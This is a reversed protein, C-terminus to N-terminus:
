SKKIELLEIEFILVSNPGIQPPANVGYALESPIFLKWKSGVKMKQLAETWGAIVGNVPFTAPQGRKHSSDFETGNVLTGTYHTVVTDTVKPSEGTGATIIKYQLGSELTTVGEETKNKALFADGDKKNQESLAAIKEQQKKQMTQQFETMVTRVEEPTLRSEKGAFAENIGLIVKDVDIDDKNQSLQTGLNIGISYSAKDKQSKLSQDAVSDFCGLLGLCALVVPFHKFM